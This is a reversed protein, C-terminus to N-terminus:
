NIGLYRIAANAIIYLELCSTGGLNNVIMSINMGAHHFGDDAKYQKAVFSALRTRSQLVPLWAGPVCDPQDIEGGGQRSIAGAICLYCVIM